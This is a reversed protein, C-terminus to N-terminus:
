FITYRVFNCRSIYRKGRHKSKLLTLIILKLNELSKQKKNWINLIQATWRSAASTRDENREILVYFERKKICLVFQKLNEKMTEYIMM